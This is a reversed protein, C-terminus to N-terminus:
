FRADPPAVWFAPSISRTPISAPSVTWSMRATTQADPPLAISVDLRRVRYLGQAQAVVIPVLLFGKVPWFWVLRVPHLPEALAPSRTGDFLAM